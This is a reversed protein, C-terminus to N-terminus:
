LTPFEERISAHYRIPAIIELLPLHLPLNALKRWEREMYYNEPHDELLEVNFTKVFALMNLILSGALDVAEIPSVPAAGVYRESELPQDPFFVDLGKWSSIAEKCFRNNASLENRPLTPIYIVPRGGWEAVRKRDVGVGFQGYKSTHLGLSEFPIDCFCTVTQAIPEGEVCERESDIMLTIGGSKDAVSNTRIEMSQLIARLTKLNREDNTPDRRGVLHYLVDSTYSNPM